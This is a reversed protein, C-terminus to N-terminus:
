LPDGPLATYRKRLEEVVPHTDPFTHGDVAAITRLGIGVNTAFAADFAPLDALRVPATTSSRVQRLLEMTTGPLCEADPWVVEQGRVFGINWTGGESVAGAADTFLADDFGARRAERRHRLLGVLGVSKV